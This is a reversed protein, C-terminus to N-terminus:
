KVLKISKAKKSKEDKQLSKLIMTRVNAIDVSPGDGFRLETGDELAFPTAGYSTWRVKVKKHIPVIGADKLDDRFWYLKHLNATEMITDISEAFLEEGKTGWLCNVMALFNEQMKSGPIVRPRRIGAGMGLDLIEGRAGEKKNLFFGAKESDWMWENVQGNDHDM